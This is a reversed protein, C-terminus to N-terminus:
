LQASALGLGAALSQVEFPLLSLSTANYGVNRDKMEITIAMVKFNEKTPNQVKSQTTPKTNM